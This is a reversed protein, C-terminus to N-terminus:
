GWFTVIKGNKTWTGGENGKKIKYGQSGDKLTFPQRLQKNKKYFNVAERTYQLSTRGNGHKKTHYDISAQNTPFTSKYWFGQYNKQSVYPSHKHTQRYAQTKHGKSANYSYYTNKKFSKNQKAIGENSPIMFLMVSLLIGLLFKLSM